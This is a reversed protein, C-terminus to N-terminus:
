KYVQPNICNPIREGRLGMLLQEVAMSFMKRRTEVVASGIHPMIVLNDLTFRVKKKDDHVWASVGSASDVSAQNQYFFVLIDRALKDELVKQLKDKM